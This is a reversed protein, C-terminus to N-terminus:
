NAEQVNGWRVPTRKKKSDWIKGGKRGEPPPTKEMTGLGTERDYYADEAPGRM